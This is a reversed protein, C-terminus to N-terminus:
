RLLALMAQKSVWARIEGHKKKTSTLDPHVTNLTDETLLMIQDTVLVKCEYVRMHLFPNKM